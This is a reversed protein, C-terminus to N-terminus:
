SIFQKKTYRAENFDKVHLLFMNAVDREFCRVREWELMVEKGESTEV